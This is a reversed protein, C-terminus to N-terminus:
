HESTDPSLAALPASERGPLSGGTFIFIYNLGFRDSGVRCCHARDLRGVIGASQQVGYARGRFDEPIRTAILCAASPTLAAAFLGYAFYGAGFWGPAQLWLWFHWPQVQVSLGRWSPSTTVKGSEGVAGVTPQSSSPLAPLSFIAGSM